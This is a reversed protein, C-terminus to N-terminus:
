KVENKEHQLLARNAADGDLELLLLTLATVLVNRLDAGDLRGRLTDLDIGLGALHEVGHYYNSAANKLEQLAERVELGNLGLDGVLSRRAGAVVALTGGLVAILRDRHKRQCFLSSKVFVDHRQIQSDSIM